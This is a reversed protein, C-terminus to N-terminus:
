ESLRPSRHAKRYQAPTIGLQRRFAGIFYQADAYHLRMAIENVSESSHQLYLQALYLRKKQLYQHPTIGYEKKFERILYNVSYHLERSLERLSVNQEARNDMCDRLRQAPTDNTLSRSRLRLLYQTFRVCAEENLRRYDGSYLLALRELDEFFDDPCNEVCYEGGPRCTDVLADALKGDLIVWKKVWLDNPDPYYRHHSGKTLFLISGANAHYTKGNIELTGSGHLIYEIALLESPNREVFYDTDHSSVCDSLGMMVVQFPSTDNDHQWFGISKDSLNIKRM